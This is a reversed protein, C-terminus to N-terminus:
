SGVQPSFTTREEEFESTRAVLTVEWTGPVPFVADDVIFHGPAAKPVEFVRPAVGMEPQSIEITLERAMDLPRGNPEMYQIHMTNTGTMGPTVVLNVQGQGAPQTQNFVGGTEVSTRGPTINVLAATLGLVLVIAGVEVLSTTRLRSWLREPDALSDAADLEIEPVLRFRNYAAAALIALVVFVKSLLVRGYTTSTLADFTRVEVWTLALGALVLAVVSAAAITSFRGIVRATSGVVDLPAANTAVTMTPADGPAGVSILELERELDPDPAGDSSEDVSKV